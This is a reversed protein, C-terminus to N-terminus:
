VTYYALVCTRIGVVALWRRVLRTAEDSKSIKLSKRTISSLTFERIYM